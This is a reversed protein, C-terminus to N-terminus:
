RLLQDLVRRQIQAQDGAPDGALTILAKWLAWGRARQWTGADLGVAERFVERAEDGFYTWAIALDCAPDGVGCRGFDILASLSGDDVLLNGVAVDGHFWVADHEWVTRMASRWLRECADVDLQDRLVELAAQVEDGYVSLHCGRFFTHRGAAAGADTPLSRLVRLTAGLDAALQTQDIEAADAVAEGSCWLRISWEFPYGAGPVGTVVIHPTEVPLRGSLFELARTERAVAAEYAAESPLRASFEDGVRFTRNDWGQRAVPRVPLEACQPFQEAILRFVVSADISVTDM